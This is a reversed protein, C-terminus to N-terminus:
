IQGRLKMATQIREIGLIFAAKRMSVSAHKTQIKQLDTFAKTMIKKLKENVFDEEWVDGSRNQVWEFYSVTVGGANALIDPIVVVDKKELIKDAEPTVPGNALELIIKAKINKVNGEHVVGDMAALVLVDIDLKLLAENSITKVKEKSMKEIDCTDEQCFNGRLSGGAQKYQYLKDIEFEGQDHIIAGKSDSVAVIKFGAKNALKAFFSGANGFGQIAITTKKPSLGLQKLYELLVFLGGQSTAYGRGLSGGLELPKGTLVGPSKEGLIKEHEDLMWAMIQPNTYVDPAPIDKNVGFIGAETGTRFYARSLRELETKSLQKPNIQVGGKGGGFPINVVACKLSMLSALSKVEDLDADPHFRIGGKYPGRASNHQVRYAPAQQIDGNDLKFSVETQFINEPVKLKKLTKDCLNIEKSADKLTMLFNEFPKKSSM